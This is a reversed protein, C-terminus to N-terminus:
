IDVGDIQELFADRQGVKGGERFTGMQDYAKLSTLRRVLGLLVRPVRGEFARALADKAETAKEDEPLLQQTAEKAKEDEPLLQQTVETAKEDEPLLQQTVETAKEDEPLLQQTVETCLASVLRLQRKSVVTQCASPVAHTFLISDFLLRHEEDLEAVEQSFVCSNENVWRCLGLIFFHLKRTEPVSNLVLTLTHHTGSSVGTIQAMDIFNYRTVIKIEQYEETTTLVM